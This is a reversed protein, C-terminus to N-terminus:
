KAKKLGRKAKPPAAPCLDEKGHAIAISRDRRCAETVREPWMSMALHAWDFDGRTLKKWCDELDKRFKPLRFYKALPCATIIVGDNLNPRYGKAILDQFDQRMEALELRLAELKVRRASAKGDGALTALEENLRRLRPDLVETILRPLADEDFKPYYVWIVFDGSRTSLPWYIPACRRSASHSVVHRSFFGSPKRFFEEFGSFGSELIYNLVAAYREDSQRKFLSEIKSSIGDDNCGDIWLRGEVLPRVAPPAVPFEDSETYPVFDVRDFSAFRGFVLGVAHSLLGWSLDNSQPEFRWDENFEHRAYDRGIDQSLQKLDAENLSAASRVTENIRGFTDAFEEVNYKYGFTAPGAYNHSTEFHSFHFQLSNWTTRVSEEIQGKAPETIEVIPVSTVYGVEYKLTTRNEGGVGRPMLLHLLGGFLTSNLIAADVM